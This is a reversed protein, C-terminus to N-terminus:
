HGAVLESTFRMGVEGRAGIAATLEPLSLGDPCGGLVELLAMASPHFSGVVLVHLRVQCRVIRDRCPLFYLPRTPPLRSLVDEHYFDSM